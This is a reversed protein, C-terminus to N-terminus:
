CSLESRKYKWCKTRLVIMYIFLIYTWLSRFVEGFPDECDDDYDLDGALHELEDAYAEEDAICEEDIDREDDDADACVPGHDDVDSSLELGADDHSVNARKRRPKCSSDGSGFQIPEHWFQLSVNGPQFPAM